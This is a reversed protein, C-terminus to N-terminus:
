GDLHLHEYKSRLFDKLATEYEVGPFRAFDLYEAHFDLNEQLGRDLLRPLERDGVMSIQADRRTSYLVLVHKQELSAATATTATGAAAAATLTLWALIRGGSRRAGGRM